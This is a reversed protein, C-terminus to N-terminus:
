VSFELNFEDKLDILVHNKEAMHQFRELRTFAKPQEKAANEVVVIDLASNHLNKRLYDRLTLKMSLFDQAALKNDVMIQVKTGEILAVQTTLM